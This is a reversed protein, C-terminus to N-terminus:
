QSAITSSPDNVRAAARMCTECGESDCCTRASSSSSPPSSSSRRGRETRSVLAPLAKRGCARAATCEASRATREARSASCSFVPSSSILVTREIATPRSGSTM